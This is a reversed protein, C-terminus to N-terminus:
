LGSVSYVKNAFVVVITTYNIKGKRSSHKNCFRKKQREELGIKPTEMMM